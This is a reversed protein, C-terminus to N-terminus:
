MYHTVSHNSNIVFKVRDESRQAIWHTPFDERRQRGAWEANGSDGPSECDGSRGHRAM